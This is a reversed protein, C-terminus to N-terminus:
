VVVVCGGPARIDKLVNAQDIALEKDGTQEHQHRDGEVQIPQPGLDGDADRLQVIADQM